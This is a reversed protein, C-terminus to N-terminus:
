EIREFVDIDAAEFNTVVLVFELTNFNIFSRIEAEQSLEFELRRRSTVQGVVIDPPFNGGLGSTVVLDGEVVQSDIPIYLMRLSGTLLGRGLVTGEARSTQLRGSVASNQDSILQVQATNATLRFIRGVLGLDTIVPMGVRLGDRAGRNIILSRILSQQEVGIVDAALTQLDRRTNTYNLLGSLRQYDSSIERLQLLEATLAALQRELDANRQRLEEVTDPTDSALIVANSTQTLARTLANLPMALLDELPRLFGFLSLGMLGLGLAIAVGIAFWRSSWWGSRM